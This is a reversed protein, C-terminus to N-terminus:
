ESRNLRRLYAVSERLPEGTLEEVIVPIHTLQRQELVSLVQAYDILGQELGTPIKNRGELIFNKFHFLRIRGVHKNLFNVLVNHWDAANDAYLLNALDLTVKFHKGLESNLRLLCHSDHIIHDRVAEVLFDCDALALHPKLLTLSREVKNFADIGHNDPHWTWDNDNLSGTESGVVGVDCIQALEINIRVREIESALFGADSHAPNFYSALLFISIGAQQIQKINAVLTPIDRAQWAEPWSKHVALQLGDIGLLRAQFILKEPSQEAFDHARAGIQLTTM